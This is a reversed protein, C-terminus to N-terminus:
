VGIRRLAATRSGPAASCTDQYPPHRDAVARYPKSFQAAPIGTVSAGSSPRPMSTSARTFTCSSVCVRNTSRSTTDCGRSSSRSILRPDSNAFRSTAAPRAVRVRTCVRPRVDLLERESLQGIREAGERRCREIEAEKKLRMPHQDTRRCPRSEEADPRVRRRQGLAVGVVEVRRARHRHRAADVVEGRLERARQRSRRVQRRVGHRRDNVRPHRLTVRSRPVRPPTAIAPPPAAQRADQGRDPPDTRPHRRVAKGVEELTKAQGGDLGFRM